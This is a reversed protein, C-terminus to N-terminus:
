WRIWSYPGCHLASFFPHLPYWCPFRVSLIPFLLYPSFLLLSSGSLLPSVVRSFVGLVFSWLCLWPGRSCLPRGRCTWFWRLVLSGMRFRCDLLPVCVVRIRLVLPLCLVGLLRLLWLLYSAWLYLFAWWFVSCLMQLIWSVSLYFWLFSSFYFM